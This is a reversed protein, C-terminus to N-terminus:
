RPFEVLPRVEVAGGRLGPLREAWSLAEDLDRCELLVFGGVAEKIEAFPGDTLVVDGGNHRVTTATEPPQLRGAELYVGAALAEKRFAVFERVQDPSPGFDEAPHVLCLYRM